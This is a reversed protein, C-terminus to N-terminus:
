IGDLPVLTAHLPCGTTWQSLVFSVICRRADVTLGQGSREIRWGPDVGMERLMGTFALVAAKDRGGEQCAFLSEWTHVMRHTRPLVPEDSLLELVAMAMEAAIAMVPAKLAPIVPKDGAHQRPDVDYNAHNSGSYGSQTLWGSCLYCVEAPQPLVTIDGGTGKPFVGGFVAPLGRRCCIENITARPEYGDVSVVVLTGPPCDELVEEARGPHATIAEPDHGHDALYAAMGNVKPQGLASRGLVHRELNAEELPDPDALITRGFRYPLAAATQSGLSGLGAFVITTEAVREEDLLGEARHLM